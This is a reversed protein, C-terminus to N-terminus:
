GVVGAGCTWAVVTVRTEPLLSSGIFCVVFSVATIVGVTRTLAARSAIRSALGRRRVLVSSQAACIRSATSTRRRPRAERIALRAATVRATATLVATENGTQKM